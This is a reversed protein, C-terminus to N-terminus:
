CLRTRAHFYIVIQQGGCAATNTLFCSESTTCEEHSSASCMPLLEDDYGCAYRKPAAAALGLLLSTAPAGASLYFVPKDALM